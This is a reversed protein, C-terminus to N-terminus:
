TCHCCDKLRGDAAAVSFFNNEITIHRDVNSTAPTAPFGPRTERHKAGYIRIANDFTSGLLGAAASIGGNNVNNKIAINNAGAEIVITTNTGGFLGQNDHISVNSTGAGLFLANFGQISSINNGYIESLGSIRDGGNYGASEFIRIGHRSSTTTTINSHAVKIYGNAGHPSQWLDIGAGVIQVRAIDVRDNVGLRPIFIGRGDLRIDSVTFLGGASDQDVDGDYQLLEAGSSSVLNVKRTGGSALDLGNITVNRAKIQPLTGSISIQSTPNGTLQFAISYTDAATTANNDALDNIALIVGSLSSAITGTGNDTSSSVTFSALLQRSELTEFARRRRPSGGRGANRAM